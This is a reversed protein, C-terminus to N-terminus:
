MYLDPTVRELEHRRWQRPSSLRPRKRGAGYIYEALSHFFPLPFVGRELLSMTQCAAFTGTGMASSSCSSFALITRTFSFARLM